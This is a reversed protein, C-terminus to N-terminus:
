VKKDSITKWEKSYYMIIQKIRFKYINCYHIL